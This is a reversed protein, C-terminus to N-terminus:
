KIVVEFPKSDANGVDIRDSYKRPNLKIATWKHADIAVKGAQPDVKGTLVQDAIDDILEARHDAREQCARAYKDSFGEVDAIWRYITERCPMGEMKCTKVMSRVSLSALVKAELEPTHIAPRGTDAM